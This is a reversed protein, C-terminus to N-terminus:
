GEEYISNESGSVYDIAQKILDKQEASLEQQKTSHEVKVRKTYRDHNHTLWLRVAGLRGQKIMGMLQSESMDNIYEIGTQLAEDMKEKFEEDERRWRYVSQRSLGVKECAAQVIPVKTLAELFQKSYKRRKM